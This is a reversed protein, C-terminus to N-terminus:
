VFCCPASGRMAGCMVSAKVSIPSSIVGVARNFRSGNFLASDLAVATSLEARPVAAPIISHRSTTHLTHTVGHFITLGLLIWIDMWGGFAFVALGLAHLVALSQTIKLLTFPIHRDTIAGAIPALLLMPVLDAEAIV